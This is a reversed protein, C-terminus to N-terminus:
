LRSLRHNHKKSQKAKSVIINSLSTIISTADYSSRHQLHHRVLMKAPIVTKNAKRYCHIRKESDGKEKTAQGM